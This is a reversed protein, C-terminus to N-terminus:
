GTPRRGCELAFATRLHREAQAADLGRAGSILLGALGDYLAELRLATAEPDALHWHGAAVGARLIGALGTRLRSEIDHLAEALPRDTAALDSAEIWLQWYTRAAPTFAAAFYRELAADPPEGAGFRAQAVADFIAKWAAARLDPWRFYHNLLGTGVGARETVARTTSARLGVELLLDAAAQLILGRRGAGKEISTSM